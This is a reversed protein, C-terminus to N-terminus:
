ATEKQCEADADVYARIRAIARAHLQWVRSESIEMVQSIERLTLSQEYYLSLLLKERDDLRSLAALVTHHIERQELRQSPSPADDDSLCDMLTTTTDSDDTSRVSRQLSVVLCASDAMARHVQALTLGLEAAVEQDSPPRGLREELTTFATRIERARKRSSRPIWDADRLADLVSGRIRETAFTEFSIGRTPDFRDVAEILGLTGHGLLDDLDLMQPLMVAMRGVVYRVLPAAKLIM